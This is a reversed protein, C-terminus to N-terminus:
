EVRTDTVFADLDHCRTEIRRCISEAGSKDLSAVVFTWHSSQHSNQHGSEVVAVQQQGGFVDALKRLRRRKEKLSRCGPLYFVITLVAIHM